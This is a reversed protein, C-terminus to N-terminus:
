RERDRETEGKSGREGKGERDRDRERQRERAEERATERAQGREGGREGERGRKGEKECPQKENPRQGGRLAYAHSNGSPQCIVVNGPVKVTDPYNEDRNSM